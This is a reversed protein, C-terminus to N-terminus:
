ARGAKSSMRKKRWAGGLFVVVQLFESAFILEDIYRALSTRMYVHNPCVKTSEADSNAIFVSDCVHLRVANRGATESHNLLPLDNKVRRILTKKVKLSGLKHTM